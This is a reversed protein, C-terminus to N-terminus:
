LLAPSTGSTYTSKALDRLAQSKRSRRFRFGVIAAFGTGVLIMSVPEPSSPGVVVGLSATPPEELSFYTSAGAAIGPSFNVVGANPNTITFTSTPGFYDQPDVGAKQTASCYSNGVFTFTCIGDGDLDFISSGTLTLSGISISSLNLVGVLTDESGDYPSADRVVTTVSLNAGITILTNCGTAASDPDHAFPSTSGTISGPCITGAFSMTAMLGSAFILVIGKM